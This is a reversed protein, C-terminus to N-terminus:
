LPLSLPLPSPVPVPCTNLASYTDACYFGDAMRDFITIFRKEGWGPVVPNTKTFTAQWQIGTVLDWFAKHCYSHCCMYCPPTCDPQLYGCKKNLLVHVNVNGAFAGSLLGPNSYFQVSYEAYIKDTGECRFVINGYFPGAPDLAFIKAIRVQTKKFLHQNIYGNIQAGLSHGIMQLTAVDVDCTILWHAYFDAIVDMLCYTLLIFNYCSLRNIGMDAAIITAQTKDAFYQLQNDDWGWALLLINENCKFSSHINIQLDPM